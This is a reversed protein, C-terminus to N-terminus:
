VTATNTPLCAEEEEATYGPYDLFYERLMFGILCDEVEDAVYDVYDVYDVAEVFVEQFLGRLAGGYEPPCPVEVGEPYSWLIHGTSWDWSAHVAFGHIEAHGEFMYSEFFANLMTLAEFPAEKSAEPFWTMRSMETGHKTVTKDVM